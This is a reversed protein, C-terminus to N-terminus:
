CDFPRSRGWPAFPRPGHEFLLRAVFVFVKKGAGSPFKETGAVGLQRSRWHQHEVADRFDTFSAAFEVLAKDACFECDMGVQPEEWAVEGAVRDHWAAKAEFGHPLQGAKEEAPKALGALAH